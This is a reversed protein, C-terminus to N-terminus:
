HRVHSSEMGNGLVYATGGRALWCRTLQERRYTVRGSEANAGAPDNVLVDGNRDFGRLVILHGSTTEYPANDLQGKAVGISAIIPRGCQFEAAVERWSAFRRVAGSVGHRFAVQINRPWIGYLDQERDFVESAIDEASVMRGYYRLVM